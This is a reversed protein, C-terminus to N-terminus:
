DLDGGTSLDMVADAGGALAVRMKELEQQVTSPVRSAGINANVKTRLARGIGAPKLDRKLHIRNAPIVLRGAAAESRVVETDVGEAQAVYKMEVSVQGSRAIELQTAM